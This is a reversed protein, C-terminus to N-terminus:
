IMPNLNYLFTPFDAIFSFFACVVKAFIQSSWSDLNPPPAFSLALHTPFRGHPVEKGPIQGFFGRFFLTSV